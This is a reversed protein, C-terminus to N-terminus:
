DATGALLRGQAHTAASPAPPCDGTKAVKSDCCSCEAPAPMHTCGEGARDHSRTRSRQSHTHPPLWPEGLPWAAGRLAATPPGPVQRYCGRRAASASRQKAELPLCRRPPWPFLRVPPPCPSPPRLFPGHRRPAQWCCQSHGWLLHLGRPATHPQDQGRRQVLGAAKETLDRPTRSRGLSGM